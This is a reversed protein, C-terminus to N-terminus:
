RSADGPHAATARIEVLLEPGAFGSNPCNGRTTSSTQQAHHQVDTAM